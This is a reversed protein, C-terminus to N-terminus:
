RYIIKILPFLLSKIKIFIKNHTYSKEIHLDFRSQNVIFKPHKLPWSIAHTRMNNLRTVFKNHYAERGAGINEVLNYKPCITLQNYLALSIVLQFDWSDVRGDLIMELHAVVHDYNKRTAWYQELIGQEKIKPWDPLGFSYNQWVRKWTAWGWICPIRSFYYSFEYNKAVKDDLSALLSTGGVCGIRLDDKYLELLEDCYKFFDIHPVCDDELIILRDEQEFAWDIAQSVSRGCGLNEEAIKYQVKCPWDVDHVIELVEQVKKQEFEGRSTRAADCAVYLVEPKSQRILEFVLRTLKPRNFAILLIPSRNM